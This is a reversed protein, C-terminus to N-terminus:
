VLIADHDVLVTRHANHAQEVGKRTLICTFLVEHIHAPWLPHDTFVTALLTTELKALPLTSGITALTTM